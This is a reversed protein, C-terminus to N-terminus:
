KSNDQVLGNFMLGQIFLTPICYLHKITPQRLSLALYQLSQTQTEWAAESRHYEQSRHYLCLLTQAAASLRREQRDEGVDKNAIWGSTKFFKFKKSPKFYKRHYYPKGRGWMVKGGCQLLALQEPLFSFLLSSFLLFLRRGKAKENLVRTILADMLRPWTLRQGPDKRHTGHSTPPLEFIRSDRLYLSMTGATTTTLALVGIQICM